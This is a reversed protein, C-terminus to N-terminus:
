HPNKPIGRPRPKAVPHSAYKCSAMGGTVQSLGLTSDAATGM